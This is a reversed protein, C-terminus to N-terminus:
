PSIVTSASLRNLTPTPLLSYPTPLLSHPTPLLSYACFQLSHHLLPNFASRGRQWEIM